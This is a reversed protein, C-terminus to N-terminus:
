AETVLVRDAREEIRFARFYAEEMPIWRELFAAIHEGERALLRAEQTEASATLFLRLDYYGRLIPYQCYSGEQTGDTYALVM